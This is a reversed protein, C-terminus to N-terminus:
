SEEEVLEAFVENKLSDFYAEVAPNAEQSIQTEAQVLKRGLPSEYFATLGAIDEPTYHRNYIAVYNSRLNETDPNKRYKDWFSEPITYDPISQQINIIMQELMVSAIAGFDVGIANFLKYTETEYM